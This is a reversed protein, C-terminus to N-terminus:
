KKDVAEPLFYGALAAVAIGASTILKFLDGDVSIHLVTFVGTLAAWTSPEKLRQLAYAIFTM